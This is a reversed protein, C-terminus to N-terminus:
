EEIKESQLLGKEQLVDNILEEARDQTIFRTPKIIEVVRRLVEVDEKKATLPLEKVILSVETQLRDLRDVIAHRADEMYKQRQQVDKSIKNIRDEQFKLLDRMDSLSREFSRIRGNLNNLQAIVDVPAAKKEEIGGM